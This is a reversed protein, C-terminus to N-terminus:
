VLRALLMATGMASAPNQGTVLRDDKVVCEKWLDACKYKAGLETLRTELM